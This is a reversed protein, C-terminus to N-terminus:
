KRKFVILGAVIGGVIVLGAVVWLTSPISPEDKLDSPPLPPPVQQPPKDSVEQTVTATPTPTASATEKPQVTKPPLVKEPGPTKTPSPQIPSIPSIPSKFSSATASTFVPGVMLACIIALGLFPLIQTIGRCERSILNRLHQSLM